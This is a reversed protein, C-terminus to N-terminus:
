MLTGNTTKPFAKQKGIVSSSPPRCIPKQRQSYSGQPIGPKWRPRKWRPFIVYAMGVQGCTQLNAAGPQRAWTLVPSPLKCKDNFFTTPLTNSHFKSARGWDVEEHTHGKHDGLPHERGMRPHRDPAKEQPGLPHDEQIFPLDWWRSGQKFTEVAWVILNLRLIQGWGM